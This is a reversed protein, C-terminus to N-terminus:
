TLKGTPLGHNQIYATEGLCNSSGSQSTQTSTYFVNGSLTSSRCFDQATALQFLRPCSHGAMQPSLAWCKQKTYVLDVLEDDNERNERNFCQWKLPKDEIRLHRLYDWIDRTWEHDFIYIYVYMYVYIYVYICIYINYIIYYIYIIYIYIYHVCGMRDGNIKICM